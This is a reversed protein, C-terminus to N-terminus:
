VWRHMGGASCGTRADNRSVGSRELLRQAVSLGEEEGKGAKFGGSSSRALGAHNMIRAYAHPHTCTCM